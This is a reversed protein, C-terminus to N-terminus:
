AMNIIKLDKTQSLNILKGDPSLVIPLSPFNPNIFVVQATEKNSLQVYSSIYTYAINKTFQLLIKTDLLGLYMHDFENIIDFPCRKKLYILNDYENCVSVIKSTINLDDGKIGKPYGSGDVREHHTLVAQKIDDDSRFLM